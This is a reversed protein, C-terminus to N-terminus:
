GEGTTMRHWWRRVRSPETPWGALALRAQQRVAEAEIDRVVQLNVKRPRVEMEPAQNM